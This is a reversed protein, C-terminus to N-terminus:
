FTWFRSESVDALCSLGAANGVFLGQERSKLRARFGEGVNQTACNGNMSDLAHYSLLRFQHFVFAECVTGSVRTTEHFDRRM